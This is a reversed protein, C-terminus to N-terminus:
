RVLLVVCGPLMLLPIMEELSAVGNGAVPMEDVMPASGLAVVSAAM